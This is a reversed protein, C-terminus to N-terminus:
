NSSFKTQVIVFLIWILQGDWWTQFSPDTLNHLGVLCINKSVSVIQEAGYDMMRFYSDSAIKKRWSKLKHHICEM